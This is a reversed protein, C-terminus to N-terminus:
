RAAPDVQYARCYAIVQDALVDAAGPGLGTARAAEALDDRGLSGSTRAAAWAAEVARHVDVFAAGTTRQVERAVWEADFAGVPPGFVREGSSYGTPETM